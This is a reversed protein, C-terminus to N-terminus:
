VQPAQPAFTRHQRQLTRVHRIGSEPFAVWYPDSDAWGASLDVTDEWGSALIGVAPSDAELREVVLIHEAVGPLAM